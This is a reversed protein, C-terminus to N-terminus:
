TLSAQLLEALEEKLDLLYFNESPSSYSGFNYGSMQAYCIQIEPKIFTLYAAGITSLKTNLPAIIINNDSHEEAIRKLAQFSARSGNVPIEVVALPCGITGDDLFKKRFVELMRQNKKYLSENISQDSQGVAITVSDPEYTEIIQKARDIEYGLIVILHDKKLPSILGSYGLVSRISAAGFSLLDDISSAENYLLKISEFSDARTRLLNLFLLLIERNFCTVDVLINKINESSITDIEDILTDTSLLPASNNLAIINASNLSNYLSETNNNSYEFFEQLYLVTKRKFPFAGLVNAASKCREEFSSFCIFATDGADQQFKDFVDKESIKM